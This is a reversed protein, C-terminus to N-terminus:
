DNDKRRCIRVANRYRLTYQDPASHRGFVPIDKSVCKRYIPGPVERGAVTLRHEIYEHMERRDLSEIHFRLRVRQVLQKLGPSELTEKLEPQGALIIRM